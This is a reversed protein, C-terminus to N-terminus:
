RNLRSSIAVTPDRGVVSAYGFVLAILMSGVAVGLFEWDRSRFAEPILLAGLAFMPICLVGALVRLLPGIHERPAPEPPATPDGMDRRYVAYSMGGGSAALAVGWVAWHALRAALPPLSLSDVGFSGLLALGFGAIVLIANVVFFQARSLM